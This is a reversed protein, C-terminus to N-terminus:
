YDINTSALPEALGPGGGAGAADSEFPLLAM